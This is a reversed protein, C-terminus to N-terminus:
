KVAAWVALGAALARMIWLELNKRNASLLVKDLKASATDLSQNLSAWAAESKQQSVERENLIRERETLVAERQELDSARAELEKEREARDAESQTLAAEREDMRRQTEAILTNRSDSNQRLSLVLSLAKVLQPKLTESLAQDQASTPIPSSAEQASLSAPWAFCLALALACILRRM